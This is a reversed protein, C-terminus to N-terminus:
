SVLPVITGHLNSVSHFLKAAYPSTVQLGVRGLPTDVGLRLDSGEFADKGFNAKRACSQGVLVPIASKDEYVSM